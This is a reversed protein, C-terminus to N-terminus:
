FEREKLKVKFYSESTKNYKSLNGASQPRISQKRRQNIEKFIDSTKDMPCRKGKSEKEKKRQEERKWKERQKIREEEEEKARREEEKMLWEEEEKKRLEEEEREQRKAECEEMEEETMFESFDLDKDVGNNNYGYPIDCLDYYSLIRGVTGGEVNKFTNM